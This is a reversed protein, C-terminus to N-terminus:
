KLVVNWLIEAFRVISHFVFCVCFFTCTRRPPPWPWRQLWQWSSSHIESLYDGGVSRPFPPNVTLWLRMVGWLHHHFHLGSGEAAAQRDNHRSRARDTGGDDLLVQSCGRRPAQARWRDTRWGLRGKNRRKPHTRHSFMQCYLVITPSFGSRDSWTRSYEVTVRCARSSLQIFLPQAHSCNVKLIKNKKITM